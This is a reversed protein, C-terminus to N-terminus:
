TVDTKGSEKRGWPSYGALSKQKWFSKSVPSKSFSIEWALLNSHTAIEEELPDEQCLVQVQM